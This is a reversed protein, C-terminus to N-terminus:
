TNWIIYVKEGTTGTYENRDFQIELANKTYKRQLKMLIFSKFEAIHVIVADDGPFCLTYIHEKRTTIRM